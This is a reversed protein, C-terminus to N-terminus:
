LFFFYYRPRADCPALALVSCSPCSLDLTFTPFALVSCAQMSSALGNGDM